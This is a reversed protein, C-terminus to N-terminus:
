PTATPAGSAQGNKSADVKAKLAKLYSEASNIDATAYASLAIPLQALNDEWTHLLQSLQDAQQNHYGFGGAFNRLGDLGGVIVKLADGGITAALQSVPLLIFKVGAKTLEAANIAFDLSIGELNALEALIEQEGQKIGDQLARQAAAAAQEEAYKLAIPTAIAGAACVGLGATVFLARRSVEGAAAGAAPSSM